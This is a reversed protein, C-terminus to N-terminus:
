PPFAEDDLCQARNLREAERRKFEFQDEIDKRMTPQNDKVTKVYDAKRDEVIHRATEKQTHL